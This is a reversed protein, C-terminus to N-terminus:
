TEIEVRRRTQEPLGRLLSRLIVYSCCGLLAFVLPWFLPMGLSSRHFTIAEPMLTLYFVAFALSKSRLRARELAGMALAVIFYVVAVGAKGFNIYAELLSSFATGAIAGREAWDSFYTDRFEYTIPQPKDAWIFRPIPITLGTLYTEGYRPENLERLLLHTNFNGFPSGFENAVPNLASIWFEPENIRASLPSWDGTTLAYGLFGRIAYLAAFAVYLFLGILLWRTTVARVPRWFFYAVFLIVLTDLLEIRRGLVMWSVLLPTSLLTWILLNGFKRRSAAFQGLALGLLAVSLFLVMESPFTFTLESVASQYAAKGALLVEWGGVRIFNIGEMLSAVTAFIHALVLLVRGDWAPVSTKGPLRDPKKLAAVVLLGVTTGILALSYHVLFEGVLYPRPFVSPLGEGYLAALPGSLGYLSGFALFIVTFNTYSGTLLRGLFIGLASATVAFLAAVRAADLISLFAATNALGAVALGLLFGARTLRM